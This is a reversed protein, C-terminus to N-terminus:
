RVLMPRLWDARDLKFEGAPDVVLTLEKVGALSLPKPELALAGAQVIGSQWLVKGDGLVRFIVSGAESGKIGSDDVGCGIRLEKWGAGDLSWTMESPAHVGIGRSYVKGAVVLPGGRVNRDSRPPWAFGLDDGFLSSAGANSPKLDGMFSFTGNDLAVERIVAGPLQIESASSEGSGLRMRLGKVPGTLEVLTGTLRGGGVLSVAVRNAKSGAEDSATPKGGEEDLATIFLAAVRNWKFTRAGLRSDEFKVGEDSFAEVFGVARDLSGKAVLYLRDGDDGPAPSTTVTDPIRGAFLISRVVDISLALRVGGQLELSLSDGDGGRIAASLRDGGALELSANDEIAITGASSEMEKSRVGEFRIFAAGVEGLSTIPRGGQRVVTTTGDLAELILRPVEVPGAGREQAKWGHLSAGIPGAGVAEAGLPGAAVLLALPALSLALNM